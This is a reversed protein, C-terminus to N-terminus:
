QEMTGNKVKRFIGIIPYWIFLYSAPIFALGQITGYDVTWEMYTSTKPTFEFTDVNNQTLNIPIEANWRYSFKQDFNIEKCGFSNSPVNITDNNNLVVTWNFNPKVVTGRNSLYSGNDMFCVKLDKHSIFPWFDLYNALPFLTDIKSPLNDADDQTFNYRLRDVNASTASEQQTPIIQSTVKEQHHILLAGVFFPILLLLVIRAIVQLKEKQSNM